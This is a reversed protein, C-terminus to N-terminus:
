SSYRSDKGNGYIMVGKKTLENETLILIKETSQEKLLEFKRKQRALWYTAKVDVYENTDILYFDPYYNHSVGEDDVYPIKGFHSKFRIGNNDLYEAYALEWTGQCKHIRGNKDVYDYWKCQTTKKDIYKGEEWAKKTANSYKQREEPTMNASRTESVRKQTDPNKMPNNDGIMRGTEECHQKMTVSMEQRKKPDSWVKKLGERMKEIKEPRSNLIPRWCVNCYDKDFLEQKKMKNYHGLTRNHKEGCEDCEILVMKEKITRKGSLSKKCKETKDRRYEEIVM